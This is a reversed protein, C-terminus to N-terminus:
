YYSKQEPRYIENEKKSNQIVPLIIVQMTKAAM